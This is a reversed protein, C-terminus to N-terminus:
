ISNSLGNQKRCGLYVYFWGIKDIEEVCSQPKSKKWGDKHRGRVGISISTAKSARDLMELESSNGM